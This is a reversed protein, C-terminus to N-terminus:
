ADTDMSELPAVRGRQRHAFERGIPSSVNLMAGTGDTSGNDAVVIEQLPRTQRLLVDMQRPLVSAGNYAVTVSAVSLNM